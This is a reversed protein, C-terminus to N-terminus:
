ARRSARAGRGPATHEAVHDIFARVRSTARLEPLTLIWVDRSHATQIPGIRCLRPDTDGEFCALFHVGVGSAIVERLALSSMDVRIAIKAGPANKALWDDLWRAGLREDWHLWPWASFPAKAGVRKALARSAYVAFDVRGVKRGVLHDPPGNSMRLAVDAERRLLSAEADTCAVTLEVDPFRELFTTLVHEYRRLLIDMTTVRLKGELKADGGLVRAELAFLEKETREASEIVLLGAATPAYGRDSADFLRSGLAAEIGQLRRAVTTHTGGLARAARSLTHHRAVALVFRLDDWNL